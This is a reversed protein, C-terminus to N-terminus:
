PISISTKLPQRLVIEYELQVKISNFNKEARPKSKPLYLELQVKISNFDSIFLTLRKDTIM